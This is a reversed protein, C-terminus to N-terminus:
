SRYMWHTYPNSGNQLIRSVVLIFAPKTTQFCCNSLIKHRVIFFHSDDDVLLVFLSSEGVIEGPRIVFRVRLIFLLTLMGVKVLGCMQGLTPCYWCRSHGPIWVCRRPGDWLMLLWGLDQALVRQTM